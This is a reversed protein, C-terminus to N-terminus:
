TCVFATEGKQSRSFGQGNPGPALDVIKVDNINALLEGPRQALSM